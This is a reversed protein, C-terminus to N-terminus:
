TNKFFQEFNSPGDKNLISRTLEAGSPDRVKVPEEELLLDLNEEKIKLKLIKVENEHVGGFCTPDKFFKINDCNEMILEIGKMTLNQGSKQISLTELKALRNNVLVNQLVEDSIKTSMGLSVYKVNLCFSLIFTLLDESCEGVIKLTHLDLMPTLLSKIERDNEYRLMRDADRFAENDHEPNSTEIFDSNHLGLKELKTCTSTIIAIARKDVEEIHVLSLRELQHGCTELFHILGDTYFKGGWLDLDKLHNFHNLVLLSRCCDDRFMFLATHIKPCYKAVLMMQEETHFFYDESAWFEEFKFQIDLTVEDELYELVECLFDGRPIHRIEKLSVIIQCIESDLLGTKFINLEVLNKFCLIHDVCIQDKVQQSREVDLSRLTKSCTESLAKLVIETCDYKLSFKQLRDFHPLATIFKDAYAEPVWGGSGSGLILTHLGEFRRLSGYLRTRIMQPVAALDLVRRMPHVLLNCFKVIANLELRFKRKDINPTWLLKKEILAECIGILVANKLFDELLIPPIHGIVFQKTAEVQDSLYMQRDNVVDELTYYTVAFNAVRLAEQKILNSAPEFTLHTLDPIVKRRPM